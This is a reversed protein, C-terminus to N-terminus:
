RPRGAADAITAVACTVSVLTAAGCAESLFVFYPMGAAVEYDSTGDAVSAGAGV